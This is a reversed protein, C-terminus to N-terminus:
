WSVGLMLCSLGSGIGLLGVRQGEHLLGAEDCLTATLPIAATGTNGFRPFTAFDKEEPIGLAQLVGRRHPGGVQHCLVRDLEEPKWELQPLFREFTRRALAVGHTMLAAGDTRTVQPASGLLGREPGWRCLEHHEPASLSMGGLLRRGTRSISVDTLLVAGAASGGTLTALNLRLSELSRERLLREITEGVIERSSEASVILGARIQRLEIRNAVNVMGELVGLCANGVDHVTAEPAAGLADAVACATAPELEDKNVGGYIVAGLRGAELEAKELALRGARASAASMATGEPWFRRESIGTLAELQGRPIHLAEYLPALREELAASTVVEDPVVSTVAEVCVRSWRM